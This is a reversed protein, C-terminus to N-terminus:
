VALWVSVVALVGVYRSVKDKFAFIVPDDHMQGRHVIMWVRSIWFLLIVCLFWIFKPRSYLTEIQPSNIYLALVLVCLYGAATGLSQLLQLDEIHYGRGAAKLKGQRQMADLEAYRKVLALSLFLFVSFLLLWFSLVADIAYAGAVIRITYLGALTIVDVLVVRKLSFSYAVTLAYYGGLVLWFKPPLVSSVLAAAFLLLPILAAGTMLSLNGSAFPRKSKRPHQRDAELDLMDNLLYVSSACFGFALFALAAYELSLSDGIKHASAIPVFVLANKAWQYVRTAKILNKLLQTRRPFVGRIEAVKEAAERVSESANVVIAGGSVQWVAVDVLENGCYEFGREGFKEVLCKAKNKGSLNHDDSSAVVGTFIAMHGAVAEALRHNSATCLWLQRGAQHQTLLWAVFPANYPLHAPDFQVRSAIEAKLAAKGRRLWLPLYLIYLPKNKILLLVSELLLDTNILTGDMDVCLPTSSGEADVAPIVAQSSSKKGFGLAFIAAWGLIVALWLTSFRCLFTLLIASSVPYGQLDLLGAMVAETGGLGGPLFSLVGVIISISYIGVAQWVDMAAEHPIKGLVMLGVGECGWALLGILFSSILLSPHLLSKASTFAHCIKEVIHHLKAPIWTVGYAWDAIKLWPAFGLLLLIGVIAALLVPMVAYYQTSVVAVAALAMMAMMDMLREVFVAAATHSFPVNKEKLYRGRIIEGLKGPSLTYGFGAVYSLLNFRFDLAHGLRSMYISWRVLRLLYNVLSLLIALMLLDWSKWVVSFDIKGLDSRFAILCWIFFAAVLGYLLINKLKM